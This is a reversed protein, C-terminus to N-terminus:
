TIACGGDESSLAIDGTRNFAEQKRRRSQAERELVKRVMFQPDDPPAWLTLETADKPPQGDAGGADLTALVAAFDQLPRNTTLARVLPSSVAPSLM